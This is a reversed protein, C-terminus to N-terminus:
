GNNCTLCYEPVSSWSAHTQWHKASLSPPFWRIHWRQLFWKRSHPQQRRVCILSINSVTIYARHCFEAANNTLRCNNNRIINKKKKSNQNMTNQMWIIRTVKEEIQWLSYCELIETNHDLLFWFSLVCVQCQCFSLAIGSFFGRPSFLYISNSM